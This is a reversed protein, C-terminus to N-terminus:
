VEEQLVPYVPLPNEQVLLHMMKENNTLVENVISSVVLVLFYQVEDILM